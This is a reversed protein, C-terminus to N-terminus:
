RGGNMVYCLITSIAWIFAGILSVGVLFQLLEGNQYTLVGPIGIFLIFMFSWAILVSTPTRKLFKM